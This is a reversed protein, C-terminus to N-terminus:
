RNRTLFGKDTPCTVNSKSRQSREYEFSLVPEFETRRMFDDFEPYRNETDTWTRTIPSLQPLLFKSLDGHPDNDAADVMIPIYRSTLWM